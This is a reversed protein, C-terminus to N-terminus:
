SINKKNCSSSLDEDYAADCCTLNFNVLDLRSATMDLKSFTFVWKSVMAPCWADLDSQNGATRWIWASRLTLM